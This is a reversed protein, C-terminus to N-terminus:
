EHFCRWTILRSAKRTPSRGGCPIRSSYFMPMPLYCGSGRHKSSGCDWMAHTKGLWGAPLSTHHIVWFSSFHFSPLFPEFFPPAGGKERQQPFPPSKSKRTARFNSRGALREMIDGTRDTSRDNVAIVEYNDYDLSLLSRLAQEITKRMAPQCRHFGSSKGGATRTSIGSGAIFRRGRWANGVCCGSHAFGLRAGPNNGSDLLFYTM